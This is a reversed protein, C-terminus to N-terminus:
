RQEDLLETLTVGTEREAVGALRVAEKLLNDNHSGNIASKRYNSIAERAEQVVGLVQGGLVEAVEQDTAGPKVSALRAAVEAQTGEVGVVTVSRVVVGEENMVGTRIRM